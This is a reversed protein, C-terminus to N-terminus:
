NFTNLSLVTNGSFVWFAPYVAETFKARFRFIQSFKKNVSFFSLIGEDFNLLVGIRSTNPTTLHTEKEDHWAQLKGNFYEICWSHKNRGLRSEAGKRLISQYAIGIGCFNGSQIEVEWYHIGKSFGQTCLVQSCHTFREPHDRYNQPTDSVSLKTYRESVIVRKHATNANVLVMKAYKLVEERSDPISSAMRSPEGQFGTPNNPTAACPKPPAIPKSKSRKPPKEIKQPKSPAQSPPKREQGEAANNLKATIEEKLSVSSQFIQHLLKENFEIKPKFPEKSTTDQLKTARKLFQLDDDEKLLSEVKVKMLEFEQKKKDMIRQTSTFNNNVRREEDEIKKMSKRKEHEILTKMEEYEGELLEKKKKTIDMVQRQEATMEVLINEANGIKRNLSRLIDRYFLEKNTKGEQLSCTHCQKHEALCYCCICQSHEPCYYDLLKNHDPCKRLHLDSLPRVLQHDIFAPSELHPQLHEPCFSAMCILCTRAAGVKMCSDCLVTDPPLPEGGKVPEETDGRMARLQNVLNSLITNKKLDPKRPFLCRCQPCQFESVGQWTLELCFGCFNHGCPITVPAEFLSLCVSCTLEEAMSDLPQEM